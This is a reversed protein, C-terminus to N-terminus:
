PYIISYFTSYKKELIPNLKLISIKKKSIRIIRENSNSKCSTLLCNTIEGAIEKRVQLLMKQFSFTHTNDSTKYKRIAKVMISKSKGWLTPELPPRGFDTRGNKQSCATTLTMWALIIMYRPRFNCSVCM